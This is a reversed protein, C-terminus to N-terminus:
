TGYLVCPVSLSSRHFPSVSQTVDKWALNVFKQYIVEFNLSKLGKIFTSFSKRLLIIETVREMTPLM